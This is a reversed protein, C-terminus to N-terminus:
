LQRTANASSSSAEATEVNVVGTSTVGDEGSALFSKLSPRAKSDCPLMAALGSTVGEVPNEVGRVGGVTAGILMGDAILAPALLAGAPPCIATVGAAAIGGVVGGLKGGGVVGGLGGLVKKWM